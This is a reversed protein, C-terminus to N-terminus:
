YIQSRTLLQTQCCIVSNLVSLQVKRWFAQMFHYYYGRHKALNLGLTKMADKLLM